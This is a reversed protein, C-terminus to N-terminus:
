EGIVRRILAPLDTNQQVWPKESVHAIMSLFSPFTDVREVEYGYDGGVPHCNHHVVYWRAPEPIMRWDDGEIVRGAFEGEEQIKRTKHEEWAKRERGNRARDENRVGVFGDRRVPKKCVSCTLNLAGQGTEHTNHRLYTEVDEWRYRRAAGVKIWRPGTGRHAWQRLAEPTVGLYEAVESTNALKTV